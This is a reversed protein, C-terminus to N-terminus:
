AGRRSHKQYRHVFTEQEMTEISGPRAQRVEQIATDPDLGIRVLYCALVLGTRGLGAGCHVAVRRGSSVERRITEVIRDMVSFTPVSMDHIPFRYHELGSVEILMEPPGSHTLSILTDVHAESLREFDSEEYPMALAALQDPIIWDM